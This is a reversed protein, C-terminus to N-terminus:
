EVYVFENLGFVTQCFDALAQTGGDKAGSATYSRAQAEIFAISDRLERPTPLRGLALQYARMVAADSSNAQQALRGAFDKAAARVQPNNMLLLAQPAVTTAGRKGIGQLSDPWDFQSMMPILKSRKVTFYISRRTMGEDLTGPGFMTKDLRGSVALISDRIIEGELRQRTQRWYLANEPDARMRREDPAPTQQYVASLMILRHIPQLKWGGRILEGALWDLLEPHAPREGNAGFDSPTNVLGRGLHHQWLRNVIVRALLNGAGSDVDTIWNAFASRLRPTRSDPPMPTQWRKEPARMLVQLFGQPAEGQKQSLDGRKLVYTKDYFDPGQTHLRLAPLGETCVLAKVLEPRPESKAHALLAEDLKRWDADTVRFVRALAERQAVKWSDAPRTMLDRATEFDKLAVAQADLPADARESLSVRVRGLVNRDFDAPFKLTFNLEAGAAFSVPKELEFVAAHDRGKKGGDTWPLVSKAPAADTTARRKALVLTAGKGEGKSAKAIVSFETVNFGGDKAWGPGYGPLTKDALAELRIAAINTLKTKVTFAMTDPAGAKIDVLRSGDPQASSSNLGYYGGSVKFGELEAALWDPEQLTPNTKLWADLRAPLHEKEFRERAAVLPEHERAWAGLAARTKAPNLDVDHDSRVTTTFTSIMRYYDQTPVPDFKHDHCRACGLSLGLMATGITNIQDDLEDYREKEAQNATIQTAHTGAGLFGTAFWAQPNDPALEDGALQWKVFTDYPLDDNLARIVFDRYHYAFPRDYDQEYGHSEGFRALDLWHRAWREGYHPSALLRDILREYARPSPDSVFSEVEEPSPPLGIVDLYARRILNRRDLMLNPKLGKADLKSLIFQDVPTRSWLKDKTKPPEVRKLPVFSWFKRDQESVVSRDRTLKADAVLPKDYPAGADIWAAIKRIPDDPLKPKKNPMHPEEAHSILKILLSAKANGPIVTVGDKGGKLLGERTTLNFDGKTKSGGGHCELCHETLLARVGGKFLELGRAMDKAHSAPVPAANAAACGLVVAVLFIRGSSIM